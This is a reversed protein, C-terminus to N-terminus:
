FNARKFLIGSWVVHSYDPNKSAKKLQKRTTEPTDTIFGDTGYAYMTTISDKNNVTWAYVKKHYNHARQITQPSLSSFEISYFRNIKSNNISNNVPSLFGLPIDTYKNLRALSNQNLSQIQAHNKLMSKEYKSVFNQLQHNNITSNIKLEVLIKQKLTNAKILYDKFNTLYVKKGAEIIQIKKLDKWDTDAIQYKKKTVSEITSNHSLVYQGDRTRQVDIEVFDPKTNSTKSLSQISNPIDKKSSIGQHAIVLYSTSPEDLLNGSLSVSLGGVLLIVITTVLLQFISYHRQSSVESKCLFLLIIETTVFYLVGTLFSMLLNATFISIATIKLMDIFYQILEIIMVTITLKFISKFIFKIDFKTEGWSKYLASGINSADVVTYYISYRLKLVVTMFILYLIILVIMLLPNSAMSIFTVPLTVYNIFPIKLGVQNLPLLILLLGLITLYVRPNSIGACLNSGNLRNSMFLILTVFMMVLTFFIFVYGVISLTYKWINDSIYSVFSSIGNTTVKYAAPMFRNINDTVISSLYNYIFILAMVYSTAKLKNNIM